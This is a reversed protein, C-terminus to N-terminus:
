ENRGGKRNSALYKKDGYPSPAEGSFYAKLLGPDHASDMEIPPEFEHNGHFDHCGLCTEWRAQAVLTEHSVTLPDNKMVLDGHCNVCFGQRQTVRVGHHELHCSVCEQPKINARAERFRPENFRFVPHRDNPRDHCDLCAKNGVKEHGFAPLTQRMGLWYRVTAQVQQRTSGQATKHCDVCNLEEHGTNMPGRVHLKNMGPLFLLALCILGLALGALQGWKQRLRGRKSKRM